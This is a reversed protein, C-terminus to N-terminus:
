AISTQVTATTGAGFNRRSKRKKRKSRKPSKYLNDVEGCLITFNAKGVKGGFREEMSPNDTAPSKTPRRNKTRKLNKDLEQCILKLQPAVEEFVHPMARSHLTEM